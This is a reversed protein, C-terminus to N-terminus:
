DSYYTMKLFSREIGTHSNNKLYKILAEKLYKSNAMVKLYYITQHNLVWLPNFNKYNFREMDSLWDYYPHLRKIKDFEKMDTRINYKFYLNFIQDLYYIRYDERGSFMSRFSAKRVDVKFEKVLSFLKEKDLSIVSHLSALYFLEFDFNEALKEKIYKSILQQYNPSVKEYINFVIDLSQTAIFKSLLNILYQKSIRKLEGNHFSGIVVNLVNGEYDKPNNSFHAMFKYLLEKSLKRGCRNFFLKLSEFSRRNISEEKELFTLLISSFKNLVLKDLQILSTITVLNEFIANFSGIFYENNSDLFEELETRKQIEHSLFNESLEIFSDAHVSNSKYKLYKLNFRNFYKLVTDKKGYLIINKIWYDDFSKLKSGQAEDIAHSAFLGEIVLEFLREFNSYKDYIIYNSNLFTDLKAFEEILSWVDNNYSYGGKLQSYYHDLIDSVEKRINQFANTFFDEQAIYSILNYDTHSKLKVAEELSDINKLEEILKYNIEKSYFPNKLFAALHSLNYKAIFYIIFKKEKFAKDVIELLLNSSTQFNGIKYNIYALKLKEKLEAENSKLGPLTKHFEFRNYTCRYCECLGSGDFYTSVSKTNTRSDLKYVLNHTLRRFVNQIKKEYDEIGEFLSRDKFIFENNEGIEISEFVAILNERVNSLTFLNYYAESEESNAFPYYKRLIHTPIFSIEGYLDNYM